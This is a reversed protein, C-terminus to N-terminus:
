ERIEGEELEEDDEEDFEDDELDEEADELDDQADELESWLAELDGDVGEVVEQRNEVDRAALLMKIHEESGVSALPKGFNKHVRMGGPGRMGYGSARFGEFCGRAPPPFMSRRPPPGDYAGTGYGLPKDPYGHMPMDGPGRTYSDSRSFDEFRGRAAHHHCRPNSGYRFLRKPMRMNRDNLGPTDHLEVTVGPNEREIVKALHALPGGTPEDDDNGWWLSSRDETAEHEKEYGQLPMSSHKFRAGFPSSVGPNGENAHKTNISLQPKVKAYVALTNICDQVETPLTAAEQDAIERTALEKEKIKVAIERKVVAEERADLSKGEQKLQAAIASM